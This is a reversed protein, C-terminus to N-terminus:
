LRPSPHDALLARHIREVQPSAPDLRAAKEVQLLAAKREGLRNLALAYNLLAFVDEPRQELARRLDSVALKPREVQLRAYGRYARVGAAEPAVELARSAIAAVEWPLGLESLAGLYDQLLDLPGLRLLPRSALHLWRLPLIRSEVAFPAHEASRGSGFYRHEVPPSVPRSRVFVVAQPDVYAMKWRSDAALWARLPFRPGRLNSLVVTEFGYRQALRRWEARSSLADRYEHLLSLDLIRGDIFLQRDPYLRHILYGGLGMENFIPGPLDHRLIYEAAGPCTSRPSVSFFHDGSQGVEFQARSGWTAVATALMGLCFCATASAHLLRAVPKQTSGTPWRVRRQADRANGMTVLAATIAFGTLFRVAYATLIAMTSFLILRSLRWRSRALFFSAGGVCLFAAYIWRLYSFRPLLTSKWEGIPLATDGGTGEFFRTAFEILIEVRAAALQPVGLSAAVLLPAVWLPLQRPPDERQERPRDSRRARSGRTKVIGGVGYALATLIGLPYSGHLNSWLWQAMGLVLLGRFGFRRGREFYLIYAVMLLWGPLEAKLAFRHSATAVVLATLLGNLLGFRDLRARTFLLTVIVGAILTGTLPLAWLGLDRELSALIVTWLWSHSTWRAPEALSYVFPDHSPIAGLALIAEGSALYWWLDENWLYGLSFSSSTALLVLLVPLSRSDLPWRLALSTRDRPFLSM